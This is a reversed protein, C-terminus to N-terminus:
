KLTIVLSKMVFINTYVYVRMLTTMESIVNSSVESSAYSVGVPYVCQFYFIEFTNFIFYKLNGALLYKGINKELVFSYGFDYQGFRSYDETIGTKM